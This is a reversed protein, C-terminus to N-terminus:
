VWRHRPASRRQFRDVMVDDQHSSDELCCL